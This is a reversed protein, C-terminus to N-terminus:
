GFDYYLVDKIDIRQDTLDNALDLIIALSELSPRARGSIINYVAGPTINRKSLDAAKAIQYATIGRSELAIDLTVDISGM